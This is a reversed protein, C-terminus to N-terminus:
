WFLVQVMLPKTLSVISGAVWLIMNFITLNKRGAILWFSGIVNIAPLKPPWDVTGGIQNEKGLQDGMEALISSKEFQTTAISTGAEAFCYNQGM